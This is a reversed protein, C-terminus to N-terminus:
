QNLDSLTKQADADVDSFQVAFGVGRTPNIVVGRLSLPGAPLSITVDELITGGALAATRSEIYCGNPSLSNVRGEASGWATTYTCDFYRDTRPHQRRDSAPQPTPPVNALLRALADDIHAPTDSPAYRALVTGDANM